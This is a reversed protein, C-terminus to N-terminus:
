RDPADAQAGSCQDPAARLVPQGPQDRCARGAKDLAEELFVNELALQGIKVPLSKVDIEPKRSAKPKDDFVDSLGDLLQDKWQKIQNPHLDTPRGADYAREDNQRRELGGIRGEGQFCPQPETQTTQDNESRQGPL